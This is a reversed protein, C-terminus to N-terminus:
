KIKHGPDYYVNTESGTSISLGSLFPVRPGHGRSVTHYPYTTEAVLSLCRARPLLESISM